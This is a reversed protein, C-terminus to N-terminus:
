QPSSKPPRQRRQASSLRQPKLKKKTGGLQPPVYRWPRQLENRSARDPTVKAREYAFMAFTIICSMKDCDDTMQDLMETSVPIVRVDAETLARHRNTSVAWPGAVDIGFHVILNRADNIPTFHEFAELFPRQLTEDIKKLKLLRRTYSIADLGRVGSLAARAFEDTVGGLVKLAEFIFAEAQAFQLVFRGLAILQKQGETLPDSSM